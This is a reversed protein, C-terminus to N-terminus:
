SVIIIIIIFIDMDRQPDVLTALKVDSWRPLCWINQQVVKKNPWM